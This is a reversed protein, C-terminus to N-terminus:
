HLMTTTTQHYAASDKIIESSSCLYVLLPGRDNSVLQWVVIVDHSQPLPDRYYLILWTVNTMVTVCVCVCVHVCMCVCVCMFVCVHVCVYM